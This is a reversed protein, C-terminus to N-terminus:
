KLNGGKKLVKKVRKINLRYFPGKIMDGSFSKVSSVKEILASNYNTGASVLESVRAAFNIPNIFGSLQHNKIEKLMNKHLSRKTIFSEDIGSNVWIKLFQLQQANISEWKRAYVAGHSKNQILRIRHKCHPCKIFNETVVVKSTLKISRWM